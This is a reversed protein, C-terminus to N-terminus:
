NKKQSTIFVSTILTVLAGIALYGFVAGMLLSPLFAKKASAIKNEIDLPTIDNQKALETTMMNVMQEKLEPHLLIFILTFLVMVLAVVIFCKFGEAFYQKFTATNNTQKKFSFLTWLIGAIYTAYSIYQLNNDFNKKVLYICVSLVIMLAGTILGKYTATIKEM